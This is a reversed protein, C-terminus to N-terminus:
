QLDFAGEGALEGTQTKGGLGNLGRFLFDLRCQAVDQSALLLLAGAKLLLQLLELYLFFAEDIESGVTREGGVLEAGPEAVELDLFM